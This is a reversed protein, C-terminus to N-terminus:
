RVQGKVQLCRNKRHISQNELSIRKRPEPWICRPGPFSSCNLELQNIWPARRVPAGKAEAMKMYTPRYNDLSRHREMQEGMRLLCLDHSWSIRNQEFAEFAEDISGFRQSVLGTPACQKWELIELFTLGSRWQRQESIYCFDAPGNIWYMQGFDDLFHRNKRERILAM